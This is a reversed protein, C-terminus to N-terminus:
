SVRLVSYRNLEGSKGDASFRAVEQTAQSAHLVLEDIEDELFSHCYRAVDTRGQWGLLYDGPDALPRAKSMIRPDHEFQWFSVVVYGGPMTHTVLADVVARRHEPLAVHHLFGFSVALDCPPADIVDALQHGCLLADVVDLNRYHVYPLDEERALADCNDYAWAELETTELAARLYREFRMNGCALDFVRLSSGQSPGVHRLVREWGQWPAQRTASFSTATRRYFDSTLRSLELATNTDMARNYSDSRAKRANTYLPM